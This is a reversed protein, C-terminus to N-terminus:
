APGGTHGQATEAPTSTDTPDPQPSSPQSVPEPPGYPAIAAPDIGARRLVMVINPGLVHPSALDGMLDGLAVAAGEGDGYHLWTIMLQYEYLLCTMGQPWNGAWCGLYFGQARAAHYAVFREVLHLDPVFDRALADHMRPEPVVEHALRPTVNSETTM